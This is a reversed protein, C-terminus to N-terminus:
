DNTWQFASTVSLRHEGHHFTTMASRKVADFLFIARKRAL